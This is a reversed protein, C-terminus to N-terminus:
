ESVRVGLVFCFVCVDDGEQVGCVLVARAYRRDHVELDVDVALVGDVCVGPVHLPLGPLELLQEEGEPSLSRVRRGRVRARLRAHTHTHERRM